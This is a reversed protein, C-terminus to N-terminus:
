YTNREPFDRVYQVAKSCRNCNGPVSVQKTNRGRDGSIVRDSGGQGPPPSDAQASASMDTAVNTSIAQCIM